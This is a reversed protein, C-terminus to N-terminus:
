AMNLITGHVFIVLLCISHSDLGCPRVFWTSCLTNSFWSYNVCIIFCLKLDVTFSRFTHM